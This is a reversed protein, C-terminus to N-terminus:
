MIIRGMTFWFIDLGTMYNNGKKSTDSMTRLRKRGYRYYLRLIVGKQLYVRSKSRGRKPTSWEIPLRDSPRYPAPLVLTCICKLHCQVHVKARNICAIALSFSRKRVQLLVEMRRDKRVSTARPNAKEVPGNIVLFCSTIREDLHSNPLAATSSSCRLHQCDETTATSVSILDM